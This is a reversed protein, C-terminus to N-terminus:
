KGKGNYKAGIKDIDREQIYSYLAEAARDTADDLLIKADGSVKSLVYDVLPIEPDKGIGVRIRPVNEGCSSVVSRMGNHTGASGKDRIRLVGRELDVDDYVVVIEEPKAKFSAGLQKVSIGSNNMYTTPKALIIKEGHYFCEGVTADCTTKKFSIGVKQALKDVVTFGMNHYTKEYKLGPNGLGVIILM